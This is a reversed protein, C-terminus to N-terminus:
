RRWGKRNKAWATVVEGDENLAVQADKGSYRYTRRNGQYEPPKVPNKVADEAAEDSVGHGDRGAMQAQGHGTYGAIQEPPPFPADEGSDQNVQMPAVADAGAANRLIDAAGAGAMLGGTGVMAAGLVNAPVGIVAGAGTLDLAVGAVEVGAGLAALAGGGIVGAVDLLNHGMANGLSAATNVAGAVDSGLQDYATEVARQWALM